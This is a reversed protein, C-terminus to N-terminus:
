DELMKEIVKVTKKDFDVQTLCGYPMIARPYSHGFNLNYLIPTDLDEFVDLYVQKYEEYYTEDVPKGVLVANVSALIERRKMETLIARLKDPHMKEGSTEIFLIKEQWEELSPFIDYKNAVEDVGRDIFDLLADGITDLCGGYLKGEVIGSGNNLAEYGHEEKIRKRNVGVQDVGFSDRDIYWTDASKIEFYEPNKFYLDFYKKTYPLMEDELEAIDVLFAPGYFTNLGLKQFMLHNMSTDSFGTFLKPKESVLKKFEDDEFLFEFTRYTDTGGIATMIADISDDEFAAKLDEARAKPNEDLYKIGKKSNPMYVVELGYDDRLRKEAIEIQHRTFEEGLIGLSLSVIAIKDGAKLKKAKKM